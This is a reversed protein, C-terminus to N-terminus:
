IDMAGFVVSVAFIKVVPPKEKNVTYSLGAIERKKGYVTEFHLRL